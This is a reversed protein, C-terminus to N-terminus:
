QCTGPGTHTGVINSVCLLPKICGANPDGPVKAVCSHGKTGPALVCKGSACILNAGCATPSTCTGGVSVKCATGFCPVRLIDYGIIQLFVLSFILFVLGVIAAILQDRGAQIQEPKGESTMLQYGAKMILLLAIGGSLGLLVGM